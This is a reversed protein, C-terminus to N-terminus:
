LFRGGDLYISRGTMFRGSESLLFACLEAVYEPKGLGFLQKSVLMDFREKGMDCLYQDTAESQVMGPRISNIRVKKLVLEQSLTRVAADMAAKSAAYATQGREGEMAAFSSIGVISGGDPDLNKRKTMQRVLEIFAYFNIQMHQALVNASLATLPTISGGGACHVLGWLGDGNAAQAIVDKICSIDSLDAAIWAHGKGELNIFISQLRSINRGTIVIQAGSAALKQAVASGIGGTAGTILIKKGSLNM